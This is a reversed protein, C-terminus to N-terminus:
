LVDKVLTPHYGALYIVIFLVTLNTFTAKPFRKLAMIGLFYFFLVVIITIVINFFILFSNNNM